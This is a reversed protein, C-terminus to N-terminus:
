FAFVFMAAVALAMALTGLWGGVKIEFSATKVASLLVLRRIRRRLDAPLRAVLAPLV